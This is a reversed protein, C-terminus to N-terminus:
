DLPGKGGWKEGAMSGRSAQYLIWPLLPRSRACAHNPNRLGGIACDGEDERQQRRGPLPAGRRFDDPQPGAPQLCAAASQLRDPPHQLRAAASQLQLDEFTMEHMRQSLTNPSELDIVMEQVQM